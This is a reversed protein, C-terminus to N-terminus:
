NLIYVLGKFRILGQGNITFSGKVKNLIRKTTENIAYANKIKTKLEIDKVITITALLENYQM